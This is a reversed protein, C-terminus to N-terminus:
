NWETEEGLNNSFWLQFMLLSWLLYERNKGEQHEIWWKEVLKEDFLGQDRIRKPELLKRAPGRLPGRLWKGYPIMFGRKPLRLVHQPLLDALAKRLFIKPDETKSRVSVPISAAFEVLEHDLFPVRLELHHAMSLIDQSYLFEGCLQLNMETYFLRNEDELGRNEFFADDMRRTSRQGPTQLFLRQKEWERMLYLKEHLLHGAPAGHRLLWKFRESFNAPPFDNAWTKIGSNLAAMWGLRANLHIGRGYNGFLEDGGTGTLAVTVDRAVERCLFWLPLGGAFPESFHRIIDPIQRRLEDASLEIRHHEAGIQRATVAAAEGEDEGDAFSMSFARIPSHGLRHMAMAVVTSDIGSSLLVGLPVDSVLRREVSAMFKSRTERALEDPPLSSPHFSPKWWRQLRMGREDVEAYHGAPFRRIKKYISDQGTFCLFSMYHYLAQHDLSEDLGRVKRMAAIESSFVMGDGTEAYFLPKIGLRDRAVWLRREKADWMAFSFMGNCLRLAEPGEKQMLAFLVETDTRTKFPYDSLRSRLEPFNYVEGNYVIHWRGCDSSLPMKGNQLDLIKLRRSGLAVHSDTYVGGEDPGRHFLARNM